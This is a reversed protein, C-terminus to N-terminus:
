RGANWQRLATLAHPAGPILWLLRLIYTVKRRTLRLGNAYAEWGALVQGARILELGRRAKLAALGEVNAHRLAPPLAAQLQERVAMATDLMMPRATSMNQGHQRVLALGNPGASHHAFRSGKLACRLWFEWDEHARLKEDFLGVSEFVQRRLLPANVLLPNANVLVELAAIGEGEVRPSKWERLRGGAGENFFAAAGSVIDAAPNAQLYGAHAALKGPQLLDDADLLQIFEGSARRIGANRAASLGANLQRIALIRQDISALRACIAPTDDTSGDDVIICEWQTYSQQLLSEVCQQLYRAYNFCPVIVTVLGPVV